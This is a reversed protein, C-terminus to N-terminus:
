TETEIRGVFETPTCEEAYGVKGGALWEPLKILVADDGLEGSLKRRLQDTIEEDEGEAVYEDFEGCNDVFGDSM